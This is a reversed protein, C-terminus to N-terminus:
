RRRERAYYADILQESLDWNYAWAITKLAAIIARRSETNWDAILFSTEYGISEDPCHTLTAEGHPDWHGLPLAHAGYVSARLLVFGQYGIEAYFKQASGCFEDVRCFIESARVLSQGAHKNLLTQRYFYQGFVGLETYFQRVEGEGKQHHVFAADQLLSANSTGLPFEYETGYYDRVRVKRFLAALEPPTRFYQGPFQPVVRLTLNTPAVIRVGAAQKL